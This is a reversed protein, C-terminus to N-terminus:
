HSHSSADVIGVRRGSKLLQYLCQHLKIGRVEMNFGSSGRQKSDVAFQNWCLGFREGGFHDFLHKETKETVALSLLEVLLELDVKRKSETLKAPKTAVDKM